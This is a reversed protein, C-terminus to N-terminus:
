YLLIAPTKTKKKTTKKPGPFIIISPTTLQEAITAWDMIIDILHMIKCYEAGSEMMETYMYTNIKANIKMVAAVFLM